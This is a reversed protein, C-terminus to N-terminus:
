GAAPYLDTRVTQRYVPLHDAYLVRKDAPAQPVRQRTYPNIMGAFPSKRDIRQRPEVLKLQAQLREGGPTVVQLVQDSFRRMRAASDPREVDLERVWDNPVLDEFVDLDDVYAELVVRVYDDMVYIEAINPSTEAGTLNIWDAHASAPLLCAGALTILLLLRSFMLTIEKSFFMWM